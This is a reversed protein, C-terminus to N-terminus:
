HTSYCYTPAISRDVLPSTYVVRRFVPSHQRQLCDSFCNKSSHVPTATMAEMVM